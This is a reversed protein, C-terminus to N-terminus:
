STTFWNYFDFELNSTKVYQSIDGQISLYEDLTDIKTWSTYRKGNLASLRKIIISDLPCDCESLNIHITFDGDKILSIVYLYKISMNVLKQISGIKACHINLKIMEDILIKSSLSSFHNDILCNLTNKYYDVNGSYNSDWFRSGTLVDRNARSTVTKIVDYRNNSLIAKHIGPITSELCFDISEKLLPKNM